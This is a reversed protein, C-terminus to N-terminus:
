QKTDILISFGSNGGRHRIEVSRAKIPDTPKIHGIHSHFKLRTTLSEGNIIHTFGEPGMQIEGGMLCAKKHRCYLLSFSSFLRASEVVEVLDFASYGKWPDYGFPIHLHGFPINNTRKLPIVEGSPVRFKTTDNSFVIFDEYKDIESISLLHGEHTYKDGVSVWTVGDTTTSVLKSRESALIDYVLMDQHGDSCMATYYPIKYEITKSSDFKKPLFIKLYKRKGMVRFYKGDILYVGRRIIRETNTWFELPSVSLPVADKSGSEKFEYDINLLKLLSEQIYIYLGNSSHCYQNVGNHSFKMTTM